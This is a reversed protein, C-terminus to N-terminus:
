DDDGARLAAEVKEALEAWRRALELYSKRLSGSRTSDARRKAVEEWARYHEAREGGPIFEGEDSM